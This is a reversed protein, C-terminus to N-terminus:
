KRLITLIAEGHKKVLAPGMGPVQLLSGEDTPRAAALAEIVQDKLIRFAPVRRRRAEKLRWAKLEEVLGLPAVPAAKKAVTKKAAAKKKAAPRKKAEAVRETATKRTKRKPPAKKKTTRRRKKAKPPAATLELEVSRPDTRRGDASLSARQFHIERGDKEFSAAVLHLLGARVLGGLVAEFGNRDLEEAPCVKKFLGGTGQGDWRRLELLLRAAVEHETATARRFVRVLCDEPACVDCIGCPEGSDERDGFHRVLHLM